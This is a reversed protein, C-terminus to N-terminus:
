WAWQVRRSVEDLDRELEERQRPDPLREKLRAVEEASPADASGRRRPASGGRAADAESM